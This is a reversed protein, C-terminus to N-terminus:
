VTELMSCLLVEMLERVTCRRKGRKRGREADTEASSFYKSILGARKDGHRCPATLKQNKVAIIQEGSTGSDEESCRSAPVVRLTKILQGGVGGCVHVSM